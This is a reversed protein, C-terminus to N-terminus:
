GHIVRINRKYIFFFGSDLATPTYPSYRIIILENVQPAEPKELFCFAIFVIM